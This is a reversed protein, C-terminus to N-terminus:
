NSVPNGIMGEKLWTGELEVDLDPQHISTWPLLGVLHAQERTCQGLYFAVPETRLM